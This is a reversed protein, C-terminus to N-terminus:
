VVELGMISIIDATSYDDADLLAALKLAGNISAPCFTEMIRVVALPSASATTVVIIWFPSVDGPSCLALYFKEHPPTFRVQVPFSGGFEGGSGGNMSWGAPTYLHRMVAHLLAHRFDDGMMCYDEFEDAGMTRLVDINFLAKM